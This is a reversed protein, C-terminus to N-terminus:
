SQPETANFKAYVSLRLTKERDITGDPKKVYPVAPANHLYAKLRALFQKDTETPM